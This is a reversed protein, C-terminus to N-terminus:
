SLKLFADAFFYLASSVENGTGMGDWTGSGAVGGGWGRVGESPSSVRWAGATNRRWRSMVSEPFKGVYGVKGCKTGQLVERGRCATVEGPAGEERGRALVTGRMQAYCPPTLTRKLRALSDSDLIM